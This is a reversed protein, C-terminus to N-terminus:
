CPLPKPKPMALLFPIASLSGLSMFKITDRRTQDVAGANAKCGCCPSSNTNDQM